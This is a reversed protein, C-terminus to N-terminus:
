KQEQRHRNRRSDAAPASAGQRSLVGRCRQAERDVIEFEQERTAALEAVHQRLRDRHVSNAAIAATVRDALAPSQYRRAGEKLSALLLEMKEMRFFADLAATLRDPEAALKGTAAALHQMSAAASEHQKVYAAPAGKNVWDRPQMEALLPQLKGIDATLAAMNSRVDWEPAVGGDQGYLAAAAAALLFLKM